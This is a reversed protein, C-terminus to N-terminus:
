RLQTALAAIQAMDAPVPVWPLKLSDGSYRPIVHIHLHFVTQWAQPRCSNILNIGDPALRERIKGAMRHSARSVAAFQEEEIEWLDAAHLKPIVLTHGRTGPAIDLFALTHEDEDVIHAPLEGAVIKCFICDEPM